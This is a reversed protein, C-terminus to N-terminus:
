TSLGLAGRVKKLEASGVAWRWGVKPRKIRARLLYVRALQAQMGAEVALQTRTVFGAIERPKTHLAHARATPKEPEPKRTLKRIM